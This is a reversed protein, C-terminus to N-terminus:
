MGRSALTFDIEGTDNAGTKMLCDITESVLKTKLEILKIFMNTSQQVSPVSTWTSIIRLCDVLEKWIEQKNGIFPSTCSYYDMMLETWTKFDKRNSAIITAELLKTLIDSYKMGAFLAPSKKEITKITDSATM